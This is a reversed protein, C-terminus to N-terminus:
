GSPGWPLLQFHRFRTDREGTIASLVVLEIGQDQLYPIKDTVTLSAARGDMNFGHSIILWRKFKTM